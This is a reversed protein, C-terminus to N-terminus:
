LFSPSSTFVCLRKGETDKSGEDIHSVTCALAMKLVRM